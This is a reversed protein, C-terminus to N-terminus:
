QVITDTYTESTLYKFAQTTETGCGPLPWQVKEMGWLKHMQYADTPLSTINVVAWHM